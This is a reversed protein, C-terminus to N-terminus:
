LEFFTRLTVVTASVFATHRTLFESPIGLAKGPGIRRQYHILLALTFLDTFYCDFINVYFQACVEQADRAKKAEDENYRNCNYRCPAV